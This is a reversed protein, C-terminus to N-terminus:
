LRLETGNYLPLFCNSEGKYRVGEIHLLRSKDYQYESLPRDLFDLTHASVFLEDGDIRTIVLTHYWDDEKQLQIMDGLMARSIPLERAFPGIGRNATIFDYFFEVGSWSPTRRTPDIYYWGFTPTFNMACSGALLCQSAFSTCDGGQGTFDIFLPNRELAWRKAYEVARERNYPIEILM